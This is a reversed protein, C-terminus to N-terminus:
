DTADSLLDLTELTLTDTFITIEFREEKENMQNGRKEKITEEKPLGLYFHITIM